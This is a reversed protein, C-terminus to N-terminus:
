NGKAIPIQDTMEFELVGGNMLASHNFFPQDLVEGNLKVQAVYRHKPSNNQVHIEFTKGNELQISAQDIMPRGISYEPKGPCVQYFGLANLVYWASMAGCDENGSIGAPTPAYLTQLVQDIREQAKFPQGLYNYFHIVHHSPENGHAYQGILGTIDASANEGEIDSSTTFLSDLQAIFRDKSGFLDTFGSVDHPVFWSWQWANGEVYPSIDHDSYNPNFPEQWAGDALKGRMFGWNPDFYKQYNLSRRAYKEALDTNGAKLAIRSICFDYYACELGYSVSQPVSDAPIYGQRDIFDLHKPMLQQARPEPMKAIVEPHYESSFITATLAEELEIGAIDKTVADAIMAAAPYGVMTGTYNSALPWKPLVGGEEHKKLLASVWEKTKQQDIITMLPHLARFTDWLSFVTYNTFGTPAQHIAKDMGRYRGDVDQAVMPAVMSHYLATYFNKLVEEEQSKVAIKALATRWTDEAQRRVKNFDWNPNEEELNKQAGEGDVSSIGVKVLVEDLNADPFRLSLQLEKGSLEETTLVEEGDKAEILEFPTSFQAYFHVPHDHAWGSSIRYGRLTSQDVVEIAGELSRHGWNAQLIHGLDISLKKDVGKPYTYRHMGTRLTSTLEAKVGYNELQVQYYGASAEETEKEFYALLENNDEGTYPLFLIDGMDGIGTGSLHTHSFGYITSDSYHYGSSADWGPLRTDPSLQVMGYPLTSGPFTHGHFGTGIFPDVYSLPDLEISASPSVEKTCGPLLLLGFLSLVLITSRIPM